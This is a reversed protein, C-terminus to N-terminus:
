SLGRYNGRDLADGKGEYLNLIISEEWDTPIPDGIFTHKGIQRLM